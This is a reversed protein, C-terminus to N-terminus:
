HLIRHPYTKSKVVQQVAPRFVPGLLPIRTYGQSSAPQVSGMLGDVLLDVTRLICVRSGFFLLTVLHVAM